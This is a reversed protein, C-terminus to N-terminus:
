LEKNKYQKRGDCLHDGYFGCGYGSGDSKGCIYQKYVARTGKSVVVTSYFSDMDIDLCWVDLLYHKEKELTSLPRLGYVTCVGVFSATSRSHENKM